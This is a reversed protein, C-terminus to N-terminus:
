NQHGAFTYLLKGSDTDWLKATCDFSGTVIKDRSISSITGSPCTSPSLTSQTKTDRWNTSYIAPKQIGSRAPGIMAAPSSDPDSRPYKDGNKNFSCNTLPLVHAKLTKFLQFNQNKKEELKLILEVDSWPTSEILVKLQPKKSETIIPEEAAIEEM